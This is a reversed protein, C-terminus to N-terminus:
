GPEEGPQEHLVRAVAELMTHARLKKLIHQIHTRVTNVSLGLEDSIELRSLGEAACELVERERPTLGTFVSAQRATPAPHTLLRLVQRLVVPPVCAEGRASRVVVGALDDLHIQTPVWSTAGALLTARVREPDDAGSMAVVALGPTRRAVQQIFSLSEWEDSDIGVMLVNCRGSAVAAGAADPASTGVASNVGEAALLAAALAEALAQQSDLICISAGTVDRGSPMPRPGQRVAAPVRDQGTVM